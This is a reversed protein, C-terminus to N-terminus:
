SPVGAPRTVEAEFAGCDFLLSSREETAPDANVVTRRAHSVLAYPM